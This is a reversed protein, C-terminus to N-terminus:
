LATGRILSVAKENKTNCANALRREREGKERFQAGVGELSGGSQLPHQISVSLISFPDEIPAGALM